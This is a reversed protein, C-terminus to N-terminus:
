QRTYGIERTVIRCDDQSNRRADATSKAGEVAVEILKTAGEGDSAISRALFSCVYNLAEQFTKGNDSSIQRMGAAGNAMISVMDNTSTDGDITLMNISDDIAVKLAKELFGLEVGADTTLFGLLTAMDPHIMGAGKAIGGIVYQGTSDTVRVAIEKPRTDTTM